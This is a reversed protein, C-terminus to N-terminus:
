SHNGSGTRSQLTTGLYSITTSVDMQVMVLVGDVGNALLAPEERTLFYEDFGAPLLVAMPPNRVPRLTVIIKALGIQGEKSGSLCYRYGRCMLFALLSPTLEIYM